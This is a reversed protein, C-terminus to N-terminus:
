RVERSVGVAVLLLGFAIVGAPVFVLGIGGALILGGVIVLAESVWRWKAM